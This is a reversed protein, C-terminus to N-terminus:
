INVRRTSSRHPLRTPIVLELTDYTADCRDCRRRRWIGPHYPHPRSDIVSSQRDGCTPCSLKKPKAGGTM